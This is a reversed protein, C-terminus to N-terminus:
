LSEVEILKKRLLVVSKSIIPSEYFSLLIDIQNLLAEIENKNNMVGKFYLTWPLSAIAFDINFKESLETKVSKDFSNCDYANEYLGDGICMGHNYLYNKNYKSKELDFKNQYDKFTNILSAFDDLDTQSLGGDFNIKKASNEITIEAFIGNLIDTLNSHFFPHEYKTTGGYYRQSLRFRSFYMLGHAVPDKQAKLGELNKSSEFGSYERNDDCFATRFLYPRLGFSAIKRLTPSSKSIGRTLCGNYYRGYSVSDFTYHNIFYLHANVYNEDILQDLLKTSEKKQELAMLKNVKVLKQQQISNRDNTAYPEVYENGVPTMGCGILLNCILIVLIFNKM